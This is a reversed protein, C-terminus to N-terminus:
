QSDQGFLSDFVSISVLMADVGTRGVCKGDECKNEGVAACLKDDV